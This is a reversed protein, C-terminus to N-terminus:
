RIIRGFMEASSAGVLDKWRYIGNQDKELIEPIISPGVEENVDKGGVMVIIM